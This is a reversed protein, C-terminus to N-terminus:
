TVTGELMTVASLVEALAQVKQNKNWSVVVKNKSIDVFSKYDSISMETVDFTYDLDVFSFPLLQRYTDDLSRLSCPLNGRELKELKELRKKSKDLAVKRPERDEQHVVNSKM